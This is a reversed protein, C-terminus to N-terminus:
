KFFPDNKLDNTGVYLIELCELKKNIFHVIILSFDFMDSVFRRCCVCGLIYDLSM